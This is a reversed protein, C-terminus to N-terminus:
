TTPAVYPKGQQGSFQTAQNILNALQLLTVTIGSATVQVDSQAIMDYATTQVTPDNPNGQYANVVAAIINGDSDTTISITEYLSLTNM